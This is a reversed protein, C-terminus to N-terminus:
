NCIGVSGGCATKSDVLVFRVYEGLAPAVKPPRAQMTSEYISTPAPKGTGLLLYDEKKAKYSSEKSIAGFMTVKNASGPNRFFLPKTASGMSKGFFGKIVDVIPRDAAGSTDM